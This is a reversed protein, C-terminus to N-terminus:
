MKYYAKVNQVKTQKKNLFLCALQWAWTLFIFCIYSKMFLLLSVCNCYNSKLSYRLITICVKFLLKEGVSNVIKIKNKGFIANGDAINPFFHKKKGCFFFFYKSSFKALTEAGNLV